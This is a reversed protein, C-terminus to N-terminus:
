LANLLTKVILQAIEEKNTAEGTITGEKNILYGTHQGHHISTLDNALVFDAQNTMLSKQAVALLEEKEVDVLLKFGVLITNPQLQKIQQIVKPTKKLILFLQDTNSSIKTERTTVETLQTLDAATIPQKNEIFQNIKTLFEEQSLSKEPTFDSVAMSHIVADYTHQQLLKQLQDALAQTDGIEYVTVNDSQPRLAHATTVYDITVNHKLFSAAILSGLKGTSHNTISRVEDIKESTGGATILIRM